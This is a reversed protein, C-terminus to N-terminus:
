EPQRGGAVHQDIVHPRLGHRPQPKRVLLQRLDIGGNQVHADVAVVLATGIRRPRGVVIEDLARYANGRQRNLGAAFRRPVRGTGDGVTDDADARGIGDASTQIMSRAGPLPLGDIHRHELGHRLQNEAVVHRALGELRRQPRGAVRPDQIGVPPGVRRQVPMDAHQKVRVLLPRCKEFQDPLGAPLGGIGSEAIDASARLVDM